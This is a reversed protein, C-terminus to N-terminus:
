GRGEGPRPRVSARLVALSEPGFCRLALLDRARM